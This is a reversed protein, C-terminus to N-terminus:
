LQELSLGVTLAGIAKGADLVPVSVQVSYSQSSEDFVPKDIFEGGKGKNFAKQWKNEDGQWYDSTKNITGVLAGQNDMVFAEVMAALQAKQGKLAQACENELFPKMEETVGAAAIWDADLKKIKSLSFKKGNQAQVAKVVVADAAMKRIAPMAADIKKQQEATQALSLAPVVALVVAFLTKM